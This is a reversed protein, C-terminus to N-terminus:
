GITVGERALLERLAALQAEYRRWRGTATAYIKKRVQVSSATAVPATNQEFRLCADEWELGCHELIGRTQAQQDGVLEEYDVRLVKGPLMRDWHEMLRAFQLFYRGTDLLDYAYNYYSFKVAFLQRFNSLCTDMPNRRLCIIRANPMALHIFGIYLFNLPMKDIFHPTQGTLPRTSELYARGLSAFDTKLAAELTEADLVQQSTTGAARKVALPLSQLEGASVVQSHSGLIREVLTTGTRPMGVIFIPERTDHGGVASLIERDFADRVADFLRRDDESSYEVHKRKRANGAALHEFARDFKGLDEYEKALAHRLHLEGDVNNGANALLGELRKVHNSEATQQRLQSLSSHAKYFRPSSDIAAEYAQEAGAFDGLFKLSSGLNFQFGANRPEKAVARKFAEVAREHDGARSFVVGITDLTLADSANLTLARSAAAVAERDRKLMALCRGLQAHYEAREGGFEIAKEIFEVANGYRNIQSSIVGLLFHADAHRRDAQLIKLCCQQAGGLEGRSLLRQAERHLDGIADGGAPTLDTM